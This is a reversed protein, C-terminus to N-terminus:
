EHRLARVPDLRAARYAPWFSAFAGTAFLVVSVGIFSYPDFTSINWVQEALIRASALSGVLGLGIVIAVLKLGVSSITGVV